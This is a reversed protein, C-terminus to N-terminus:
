GRPVERLESFAGFGGFVQGDARRRGRELRPNERIEAAIGESLCIQVCAKRHMECIVVQSYIGAVYTGTALKAPTPTSAVGRTM